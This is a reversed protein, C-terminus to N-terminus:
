QGFNLSKKATKAASTSQARGAAYLGPFREPPVSVQGKSHAIPIQALLVTHTNTNNMTTNSPKQCLKLTVNQSKMKIKSFM